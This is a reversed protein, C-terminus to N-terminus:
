DQLRLSKYSIEHAHLAPVASTRKLERSVNIRSSILTLNPAGVSARGLAREMDETSALALGVSPDQRYRYNYCIPIYVLIAICMLVALMAFFYDLHGQNLNNGKGFGGGGLGPAGNKTTIAAVIAVLGTSLYSGMAIAILNLASAMSRMAEPSQSYFFELAGVSAFVEAMGVAFYQPVQWWVSMPVSNDSPDVNQLNNARVAKLRFVEVLAAFVMSMIAIGFGIGMRLLRSIPRGIRKFYPDIVLDYIPVWILVSIIDLTSIIAPPVAWSGLHRNMASGQLVFLTSMQAYTAFYVALIVMFPILRVVCKLEEVETVTVLWRDRVGPAETATAAKDLWRFDPTHIMKTQGPVISMPTDVEHLLRADDPVEARWHACAGALVRFWRNIPSGGPPCRRYWRSGSVFCIIAIAFSITPILFGIMWSVDTQVWVVLTSAFFSGINVFAYFWNYFRPILALEEPNGEDFQDAGFVSVCPKIGGTGISVLYMFAWFFGTQYSSPAVGDPPTLSPVGASVTLGVLGVLYVSCFSLITWFRGTYTDALWAGVIPTVYCTGIWASVSQAADSNTLNLKNTLYMVINTSLGYYALRECLETRKNPTADTGEETKVDQLDQDKTESGSEPGRAMDATIPQPEETPKSKAEM